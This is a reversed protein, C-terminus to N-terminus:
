RHAALVVARTWHTDELLHDESRVIAEVQATAAGRQFGREHRRTGEPDVNAAFSNVVTPPGGYDNNGRCVITGDDLLACAHETDAALRTLHARSSKQGTHRSAALVAACFIATLIRLHLQSRM